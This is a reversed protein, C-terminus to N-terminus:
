GVAYGGVLLYEVRSQTQLRIRETYWFPAGPHIRYSFACGAIAGQRM